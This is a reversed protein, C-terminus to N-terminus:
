VSAEKESEAKPMEEDLGVATAIKLRMEPNKIQMINGLTLRVGDAILKTLTQYEEPLRFVANPEKNLYVRAEESKLCLSPAHRLVRWDVNLDALMEKNELEEPFSLFIETMLIKSIGDEKCYEWYSEIAEKTLYSPTKISGEPHMEAIKKCIDGNLWSVQEGKWYDATKNDGMKRYYQENRFPIQLRYIFDPPFDRDLELLAELDKLTRKEVPRALFSEPELEDEHGLDASAFDYEWSTPNIM